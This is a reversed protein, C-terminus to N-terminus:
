REKGGTCMVNFSRLATGFTLACSPCLLATFLIETSDVAWSSLKLSTFLHLLCIKLLVECVAMFDVLTAGADAARM